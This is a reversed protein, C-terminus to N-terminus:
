QIAVTVTNSLQGAVSLVLPVAASPTLGSPVYANVQYLGAFGPTLGAFFAQASAGGISVTVTDTTTAPPSGPAATGEIVAPSVGGLSTCYIVLADGASAPHSADNLFQTGDAKAVVALSQGSGSQDSSLIAPAARGVAIPEATSYQAGQQVIVQQVSNTPLDYPLIANIQGDSVFKLPVVRGGIIVQTTNLQTALPFVNSV